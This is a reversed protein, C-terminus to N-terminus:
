LYSLKAGGRKVRGEGSRGVCTKGVSCPPTPIPHSKLGAGRPPTPILKSKKSRVQGMKARDRM